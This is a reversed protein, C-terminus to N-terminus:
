QGSAVRKLTKTMADQQKALLKTLEEVLAMLRQSNKEASIRQCLDAIKPDIV